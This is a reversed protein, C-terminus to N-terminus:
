KYSRRLKRLGKNRAKTWGKPPKANRHHKNGHCTKAKPSCKVGERAFYGRMCSGVAKASTKGACKARAEGMNAHGSAATAMGFM